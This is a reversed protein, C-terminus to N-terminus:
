RFPRTNRRLRFVSAAGPGLKDTIKQRVIELERPDAAARLDAEILVAPYGYQRNTKSLSYVLSAIKEEQGAKGSRLFEVRLPRDYKVAQLYLAAIRAAYKGFDRLVPTDKQSYDFAPTRQGPELVAYLFSSDNTKSLFDSYPAVLKATDAGAQLSCIYQKSRSDKVIGAIECGTEDSLAFLRKYWEVLSDWRACLPSEGAPKAMPLPVISGDLFLADPSHKEVTKAATSIESELRVLEKLLNFEHSELSYEVTTEHPPFASPFHSHGKLKGNEYRFVAACARGLVLDVSHLEEAVIGGDVAAVSGSFPAGEAEPFAKAGKVARGAEELGKQLHAIDRVARDLSAHM